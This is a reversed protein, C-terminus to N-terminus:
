TRPRARQAGRTRARAELWPVVLAVTLDVAEDSSAGRAQLAFFTPPGIVAAVVSLATEDDALDGLAARM